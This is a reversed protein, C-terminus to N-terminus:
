ITRSYVYAYTAADGWSPAISEKIMGSTLSFAMDM